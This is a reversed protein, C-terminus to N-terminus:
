AAGPLLRQVYKGIIDTEINVRDGVRRSRLNTRRLTFPIAAVSFSPKHCENITLSIGDVSISGKPVLRRQFPQPVTFQFFTFEGRRDIRETIGVGDVHGTVWHGGLRDSLRLPRELNVPDRPRLDRFNTRELTEPSVDVTFCGKSRKVVTLCAGNVAISSGVGIEKLPLSTKLTLVGAGGRMEWRDVRGVDEIIGTFMLPLCYIAFLGRGGNV